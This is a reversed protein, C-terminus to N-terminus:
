RSLERHSPASSILTPIMGALQLVLTTPPPPGLGLPRREVALQVALTSLTSAAVITKMKRGRRGCGEALFERHLRLWVWPFFSRSGCHTEESRHQEAAFCPAARFQASTCPCCPAGLVDLVASRGVKAAPSRATYVSPPGCTRAPEPEREWDVVFVDGRM